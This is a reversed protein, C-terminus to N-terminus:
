SKTNNDAAFSEICFDIFSRLKPTMRRDPAYLINMPRAPITYDSLLRVLSGDQLHKGVSESPQLIIGGDQLALELLAEGSDITIQSSIPVSISENNDVFTWKNRLETHAFSLCQHHELDNPHEIAPSAALYGPSACLVLQYPALPRAILGSDPLEGVRFIVDYGEDIMDVYRNSITLEIKVKPYRQAYEKLAPTLAKIGFTIPSNIRLTGIPEIRSEAALSEAEEMESLIFKARQYFAEGIDTLHQRRTTKHLLKVGLHQELARVYKGVLQPSMDLLDGASTLSGAEVTKVFAKMSLLQDM